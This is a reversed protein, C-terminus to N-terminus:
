NSEMTAGLDVAPISAPRRRRILGFVALGVLSLTAPEPVGYVVVSGMVPEGLVLAGLYSRGGDVNSDVMIEYPGIGVMTMTLTGVLFPATNAFSFSGLQWGADYFEDDPASSSFFITYNGFAFDDFTVGGGNSGVILNFADFSGLSSSEIVVDVTFTEGLNMFYSSPNFSVVGAMTCPTSLLITLGVLRVQKM